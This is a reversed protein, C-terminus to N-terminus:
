PMLFVHKFVEIGKIKSLTQDSLPKGSLVAAAVAEFLHTVETLYDDSGYYRPGGEYIIYLYSYDINVEGKRVLNILSEARAILFLSDFTSSAILIARVEGARKQIETLIENTTDRSAPIHGERIQQKLARQEKTLLTDRDIEVQAKKSKMAKKNAYM